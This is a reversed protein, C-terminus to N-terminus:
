AASAKRRNRRRGLLGLLGLGAGFLPLAAPLPVESTVQLTRLTGSVTATLPKNPDVPDIEVFIDFFSGISFEGAGGGLKPNTPLVLANAVATNTPDDLRLFFADQKMAGVNAGTLGDSARAVVGYRDQDPPFNDVQIEPAGTSSGAYSGITFSLALLADFVSNASDSGSRAAVTSDFTYTGTLVQGVSFQGALAADVSDVVGTYQITISAAQVPKAVVGALLFLAAAAAAFFGFRRIM